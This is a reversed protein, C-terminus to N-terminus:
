RLNLEIVKGTTMLVLLARTAATHKCYTQLQGRYVNLKDAAMAVDSKWDVIAEIQGDCNVAVADAIGSILIDGDAGTQHGYVTQEPVLRPRLATIEPLRLTRVITEALETPSIGLKPDTSPAVGLHSLLDTARETLAKVDDVMEGTLVEEMLKHLITGRTASGAVDLREIENTKDVAEPNTFIPLPRPVETKEEEGRSPRNWTIKRKAKAIREAEAEFIAKTQSNETADPARPKVTGLRAPDIPPLSPLDLDVIQAWSKDPLTASHRPLVLLDRARTAAVYWLRVRERAQEEDILAKLTGYDPPEVGLVSISFQATRRDHMIGTEGKPTGTMNVPIVIPWELGKASHITILAVSQQEADPRGEVQRVAEEWNARMDRAFARLGRVDYGRAMELYLDVNALAREAGAKFRQLLQPRVNLASAADALLMYPTTSRARKGIAQLKEIVSRALDHGIQEPPTWLNLNRLRDPRKPDVPLGESIDLLEVETLGVLPGRLLAGLALTDRADALTRTLAILDQIEQRRFFGKGAQTSVPIGQAELAEEFRWLDTGVPALLAIDGLECPRLAKTAHDRVSWNGVLRNCLEAIRNAEADRLIDATIKEAEISIDLAAITLTKKPAECTASLATFGPQGQTQSLPGAFKANVFDLIPAVSRFNATIKLTAKDGIATRAALYANVDAGRFRYIAQKPDGVLFLAGPRLPRASPATNGDKPAEGCLRWLIDIQLPDTDQFEDVLVHRFRKALAQRVPEHRELLKRATYLLDDFDLLAAARKYEHWQSMLGDMSSALRALVEGAAASTLTAYATHCDQYLADVAAHAETGDGKSNGAAKAAAEWKGKNRLQLMGGDKRFCEEPQPLRLVGILVSVPANDRALEPSALMKTLSTFADHRAATDEEQFGYRGLQKGFAKVANSFDRVLSAKWRGDAPQADRNSKLFDAVERVLKIGAAEDALVLEAVVGDEAEGSLHEKLWAEFRETFALDAEAPDIIYAGPDIGAEVPYPKSLAQAFGHITTCTLQDLVRKAAELNKLQKSSVGEPFASALDAPVTGKALAQVFRDIRILLESAAFETFTIAAIHKPFIGSALLVAVRGAMISTKGSGAGAEVLLSRDIATLATTRAAADPLPPLKEAMLAGGM